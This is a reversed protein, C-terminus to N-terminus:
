SLQCFISFELFTIHLQYIIFVIFISFINLFSTYKIKNVYSSNLNNDSIEKNDTDPDDLDPKDNIETDIPDYICTDDKNHDSNNSICAKNALRINVYILTIKLRMLLLQINPIEAIKVM